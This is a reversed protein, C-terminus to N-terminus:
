VYSLAPFLAHYTCSASPFFVALYWIKTMVQYVANMAEDKVDYCWQRCEIGLIVWAMADSDIAWDKVLVV